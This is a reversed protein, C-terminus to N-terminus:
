GDEEDEEYLWRYLVLQAADGFAVRVRRCLRELVDVRGPWTLSGFADGIRDYAIMQAEFAEGFAVRGEDTLTVTRGHRDRRGRTVWGRKELVALMESVTSRAAGLAGQVAKQAMTGGASWLCQLVDLRAPTVGTGRLLRRGAAWSRWHARKVAWIARHM